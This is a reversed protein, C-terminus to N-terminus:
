NGGIKIPQASEPVQPTFIGEPLKANIKIRSLRLSLRFDEEPWFLNVEKPLGAADGVDMYDRYSAALAVRGDEYFFVQESVTLNVREVTIRKLVATRGRASYIVPVIYADPYIELTTDFGEQRPVLPSILFAEALRDPRLMLDEASELEGVSGEYWDDVDEINIHVLFTEGDSALDFPDPILAGKAKLRIKDPPELAILGDVRRPSKMEPSSVEMDMSAKLTHFSALSQSLRALLEEESLEQYVPRQEVVPAKCGVGLGCLIAALSVAKWFNSNM